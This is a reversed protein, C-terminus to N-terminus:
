SQNTRRSIGAIEEIAELSLGHKLLLLIKREEPTLQKAENTDGTDDRLGRLYDASTQLTTALRLLVLTSPDTREAEYRAIAQQKMGLLTALEEQSLGLRARAARMREGVLGTKRESM